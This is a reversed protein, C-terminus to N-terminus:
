GGARAAKGDAHGTRAAHSRQDRNAVAPLAGRAYTELGAIGEGARICSGDTGDPRHRPRVNYASEHRDGERRGDTRRQLRWCVKSEARFSPSTGRRWRPRISTSYSSQAGTPPWGIWSASRPGRTPPSAFEITRSWSM